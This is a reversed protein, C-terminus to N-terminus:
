EITVVEKITQKKNDIAEVYDITESKVKFIEKRENIYKMLRKGTKPYSNMIVLELDIINSRELLIRKNTEVFNCLAFFIKIWNRIKTFNMTASHNRIEWTNSGGKYGGKTNYMLTIYNLWCYRQAGKDYGCKAGNPHQKRKNYYQSSIFPELEGETYSKLKYSKGEKGKIFTAEALILDYIEDITINYEERSKSAEQLKPLYKLTIQTLRRCYSSTRRSAPLVSFIEDELLEALIYSFVIDEKTWNLNGVHVHVGCQSNVKCKSSIVRCINHLQTLGADGVLVGTVYEGGPTNGKADRLSGDHVAKINLDERDRTPIRGICTEIEIGFPYRLGEFASYTLSDVGYKINQKIFTTVSNKIEELSVGDAKLNEELKRIDIKKVTNDFKEYNLYTDLVPLEELLFWENTNFSGKVLGLLILKEDDDSVIFEGNSISIVLKSNENYLNIDSTECIYKGNSSIKKDIRILRYKNESGAPVIRSITWITKNSGQFIYYDKHYHDEILTGSLSSINYMKGKLLVYKENLYEILNNKYEERIDSSSLRNLEEESNVKNFVLNNLNNRIM